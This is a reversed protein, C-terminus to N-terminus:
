AGLPAIMTSSISTTIASTTITMLRTSSLGTLCARRPLSIRSTAFSKWENVARLNSRCNRSSVTKSRGGRGPEIEIPAEPLLSVAWQHIAFATPTPYKGSIDAPAGKVQQDKLASRVEKPAKNLNQTALDWWEPHDAFRITLTDGQPSKEIANVANWFHRREDITAGITGFSAYELADLEDDSLNRITTREVAGPRELYDQQAEASRGEAEREMIAIRDEAVDPDYGPYEKEKAVKEAAGDREIYLLHATATPDIYRRGGRAAKIM